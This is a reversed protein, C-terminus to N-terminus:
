NIVYAPADPSLRAPAAPPGDEHVTGGAEDLVVDAALGQGPGSVVAGVRADDLMFRMRSPPYSPDVPVYAAGARWAGLLAVVLGPCRDMVGGVRSGPGVGLRRLAAAVGDA